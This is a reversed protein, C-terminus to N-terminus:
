IRLRGMKGSFLMFKALLQLRAGVVQRNNNIDHAISGEETLNIVQQNHDFLFSPKTNQNAEYFGQRWRLFEDDRYGVIDGNNNISQASSIVGTFNCIVRKTM